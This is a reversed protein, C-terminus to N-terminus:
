EGKSIGAATTVDVVEGGGNFRAPTLAVVMTEALKVVLFSMVVLRVRCRSRRRM